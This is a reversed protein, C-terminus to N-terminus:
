DVAKAANLAQSFDAILDDPHELGVHLRILHGPRLASGETRTPPPDVLLALSEFGGWSLGIGFFNFSSFLRSLQPKSMPKLVVGFLGSAGKFDRKWLAHGPDDALGPHLVQEVAPHKALWQAVVLGNKWHRELRVELTRLGRLALFIDDPGATEGFHASSAELYPWARENSTAVGLLADSHGIFYKTASQISIDVGHEIPKFFLPTAWTNDMVVYANNAHALKAIAAIDQVEFTMSGPSEAYVVKTQSRMKSQLDDLRTPHFFEVEVNMRRLVQEAFTRTPGYVSDTMLLHDGAKLLGILAHTCASLGSPFVRAGHGGELRCVASEFARTLPSGFRGYNSMPNNDDKSREWQELSEALITSGRYVPVNVFGAHERSMRGAHSLFTSSAVHPPPSVPKSM